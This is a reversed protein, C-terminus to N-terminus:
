LAAYRDGMRDLSIGSRRAQGYTPAPQRVAMDFTRDMRAESLGDDLRRSIGPPNAPRDVLCGAQLWCSSRLRATASRAAHDVPSESNQHLSLARSYRSHTTPPKSPKVALCARADRRPPRFRVKHRSERDGTVVAPATLLVEGLITPLRRLPSEPCLRYAATQVSACM